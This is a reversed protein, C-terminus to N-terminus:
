STGAAGTALGASELGGAGPHRSACNLSITLAAAVPQARAAAGGLTTNVRENEDHRLLHSIKRLTAGGRGELGRAGLSTKLVGGANLDPKSVLGLQPEHESLFSEKPLAKTFTDAVQERSPVYLVNVKKEQHLERLFKYRTDIHKTKFHFVPNKVLKIASQNDVYVTPIVEIRSSGQLTSQAMYGDPSCPQGGCVERLWFDVRRTDKDGAYDADSYPVFSNEEASSFKKVMIKNQRCLRKHWIQLSTGEKVVCANVTRVRMLLKYLNGDRISVAKVQGSKDKFVRKDKDAIEMYGHDLASGSHNRSFGEEKLEDNLQQWLAQLKSVHTAIDDAEDKTYTFLQCYLLDLRRDNKQEYVSHLIDWMEKGSKATLIHRKPERALRDLKEQEWHRTMVERSPLKFTGNMSRVYYRVQLDFMSFACVYYPVGVFCMSPHQINVLHKYLPEVCNDDVVVGCSAHLFPFNYLYGTCLFVVDVEEESGDLFVAQNGELREVDPKQVLNDPFVTKPQEKLHHSLIVRSAVTTVELAIDMGSPGAGVVLVRKNTFIDPVRYDHSHMIDGQFEKLGPINPIFPTNYHGNCVFVYDYERTESVGTELSKFTVDWVEGTATARPKVFQVHHKFKIHQTVGHKDAYLQLFALMDKAPLYSKDSEPIPFDPFGMIEKPLNTKSSLEKPGKWNCYILKIHVVGPLSVIRYFLSSNKDAIHRLNKFIYILKRTRASLQKIHEQFNLKDDIIVGLYKINSTKEIRLCDCCTLRPNLCTHAIIYFPSLDMHIDAKMSFTMFKTKEINLSLINQNLWDTVVDFGSQAHQFVESWTSGRFILATDDAFTIVEGNKLQLQCLDNIYTLFLTPGLISGQPVGFTVHMGESAYEGVKVYQTRDSLYDKFLQLQLGRVGIRELKTILLPISVTDFAKALDLFIAISKQKKDLNNVIHDTLQHVADSTSKGARFGFQSPSVLNNNELYNVLRSNMIRELIKSLAPLISIPRYNNVCDRDGKKHVPVIQAKKFLRPFVGSSLALNCVHTISPILFNKYKKIFQGSIKDWGVACDSRLNRIVIDIENEDVPLMGMSFPCKQAETSNPVDTLRNPIKEALSKGVNAFFSNVKNISTLPNATAILEFPIDKQKSTYTIDKITEWLKKLNSGAKSIESKEYERKLKKLLSNCFNRYRRYTAKLIENDPTIKLKKHLNDRNRICKLLGPSIWPKKIRKRNSINVVRTNTEIIKTLSNVLYCTAANVDQMNLIPKLDLKQMDQDMKIDDTRQIVSKGRKNCSVSHLFLIVCEHDTISSNVVCCHATQKTKLMIHDLCTKSRTPLNHAPLLGHSVILNLYTPARTDSSCETIDINLDGALIINQYTSYKVLLSNLSEVFNAINRQSPPRYIAFIITNNNIKILLCNADLLQPEDVSVTVNKKCYVVVGENQTKNNKTSYYNYDGLTPIQRTSPLWCETLIIADWSIESRSLLTLLGIDKDSEILIAPAGDRLRIYVKGYSTWSTAYEHTKKYQRALYFLHQAKPTLFEAIYIPKSPGQIKPINRIELSTARSKRESYEIQQELSTIKDKFSKNEQQLDALKSVLEDYKHSIFEMSKKIETNQSIVSALSTTLADFKADQKQCYDSFLQKIEPLFPTMATWPQCTLKRKVRRTIKNLNDASNIESEVSDHM